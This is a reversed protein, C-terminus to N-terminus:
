VQLAGSLLGHRGFLERSTSLHPGPHQQKLTESHRAVLEDDLVVARREGAPLPLLGGRRHLPRQGVGDRRKASMDYFDRARPTGIRAHMRETLDRMDIKRLLPAGVLQAIR